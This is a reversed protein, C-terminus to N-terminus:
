IQWLIILGIMLTNSSILNNIQYAVHLLNSCVIRIEEKNGIISTSLIEIVVKKLQFENLLPVYSTKAIAAALNLCILLNPQYKIRFIQGFNFM